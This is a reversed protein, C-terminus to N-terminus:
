SCEGNDCRSRFSICKAPACVGGKCATFGGLPRKKDCSSDIANGIKVASDVIEDLDQAYSQNFSFLSLCFFSLVVITLNLKRNM